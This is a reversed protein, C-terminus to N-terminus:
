LDLAGQGGNGWRSTNKDAMARSLSDTNAACGDFERRMTLARALAVVWAQCSISKKPNFEIDSFASYCAVDELLSLKGRLGQLYIWTYALTPPDTPLSRGFWSFGIIRGSQRLRRDRKAARPGKGLLDVFPGGYEFIKSAQYAEEVTVSEGDSTECMLNFASLRQGISTPSASSIELIATVGARTTAANHLNDIRKRKQSQSLGPPWEFEVMIQEVMQDGDATPVFIPRKAM